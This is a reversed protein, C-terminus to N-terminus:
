TPTEEDGKEKLQEKFKDRVNAPAFTSFYKALGRAEELQRELDEIKCESCFESPTGTWTIGCTQCEHEKAITLFDESM